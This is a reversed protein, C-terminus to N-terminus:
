VTVVKLNNDGIIDKRQICFNNMTQLEMDDARSSLHHLGTVYEM